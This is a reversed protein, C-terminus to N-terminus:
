HHLKKDNRPRSIIYPRGGISENKKKGYILYCLITMWGSEDFQPASLKVAVNNLKFIHLTWKVM